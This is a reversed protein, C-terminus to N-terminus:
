GVPYLHLEKYQTLIDEFHDDAWDEFCGLDCFYVEAQEDFLADDCDISSLCLGCSIKGNM